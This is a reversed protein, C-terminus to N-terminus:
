SVTDFWEQTFDESDRVELSKGVEFQKSVENKWRTAAMSKQAPAKAPSYYIFVLPTKMRGDPMTKIYAFFVYRPEIEPLEEQIDDISCDELVDDLELTTGEKSIKLLACVPKPNKGGLKLKKMAQAVDAKILLGGATTFDEAEANKAAEKEAKKAEAAAKAAEKAEQAAKEKAAQQAERESKARAAEEDAVRRAEEAAAREKKAAELESKLQELAAQLKETVKPHKAEKLFAEIEGVGAELDQVIEDQSM